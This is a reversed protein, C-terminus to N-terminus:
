RPPVNFNISAGVNLNHQRSEADGVVQVVNVFNPDLRVGNVPSNLNMGRMLNDGSVHAYTANMSLMRTVTRSGSLSYRTNRAMQLGDSLLYRDTVTTTGVTPATPYTPNIINM